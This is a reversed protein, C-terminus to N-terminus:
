LKCFCKLFSIIDFILSLSAECFKAVCDDCVFPYKVTSLVVHYTTYKNKKENCHAMLYFM